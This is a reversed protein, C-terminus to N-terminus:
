AGYYSIALVLPIIAELPADFDMPQAHIIGGPSKARVAARWGDAIPYLEALWGGGRTFVYVSSLRDDWYHRVLRLLGREETEPERPSV